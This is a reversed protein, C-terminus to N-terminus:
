PLRIVPRSMSQSKDTWVVTVFRDASVETEDIHFETSDARRLIIPGEVYLQPNTEGILKHLVAWEHGVNTVKYDTHNASRELTWGTLERDARLEDRRDQNQALLATISSLRNAEIAAAASDKAAQASEAAHRNASRASFGQWSSIGAAIASVILALLALVESIEM